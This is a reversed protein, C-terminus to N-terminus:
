VGELLVVASHHSSRLNCISFSSAVLFSLALGSHSHFFHFFCLSLSLHSGHFISASPFSFLFSCPFLSSSQWRGQGSSPGATTFFILLSFRECPFTLFARLSLSSTHARSIVDHRKGIDGREIGCWFTQFKILKEEREERENKWFGNWNWMFLFDSM